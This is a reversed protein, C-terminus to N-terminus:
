SDVTLKGTAKTKFCVFCHGGNTTTGWSGTLSAKFPGAPDFTWSQTDDGVTATFGNATGPRIGTGTYTGASCDHSYSKETGSIAVTNETWAFSYNIYWGSCHITWTYPRDAAVTAALPHTSPATPTNRDSCGALSATGLLLCLEIRHRYMTVEDQKFEGSAKFVTRQEGHAEM